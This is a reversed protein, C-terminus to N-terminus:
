KICELKLEELVERLSHYNCDTLYDLDGESIESLDYKSMESKVALYINRNQKQDKYYGGGVYGMKIILDTEINELERINKKEKM